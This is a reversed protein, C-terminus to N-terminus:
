MAPISIMNLSSLTPVAVLVDVRFLSCRVRQFLGLTSPRQQEYPSVGYPARMPPSGGIPALALSRLSAQERALWDNNISALSSEMVSEDMEQDIASLSDGDGVGEADGDEM